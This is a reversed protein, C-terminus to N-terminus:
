EEAESYRRYADMMEQASKDGRNMAERTASILADPTSGMMERWDESSTLETKDALTDFFTEMMRGMETIGKAGGALLGYQIRMMKFMASELGSTEKEQESM